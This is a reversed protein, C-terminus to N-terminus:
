DARAPRSGEIKRLILEIDAAAFLAERGDVFALIHDFPPREAYWGADTRVAFRDFLLGASPVEVESQMLHDWVVSGIRPVCHIAHTSEVGPMWVRSGVSNCDAGDGYPELFTRGPVHSAAAAAEVIM